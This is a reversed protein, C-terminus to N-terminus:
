TDIGATPHQRLDRRRERPSQRVSHWCAGTAASVRFVSVDSSNQNIVYAYKGTPDIAVSVPNTGAPVPPGIPTLTGTTANITFMSVNSSSFNAVYAFKEAPLCDTVM